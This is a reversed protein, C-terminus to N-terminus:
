EQPDLADRLADGLGNLSLVTLSLAVAPAIVVLPHSLYELSQLPGSILSGWSPMPPKIGIGLFSLTSEAIIVGAIDVTSAVVVAALLNPFIHRWLVAGHKLGIARAAEVYPREKLAMAQGRVLRALSPWGTISLTILINTISPGLIAMILIALLIDPFAFMMDTLRMLWLDVRGGFYGAALGITTGLVLVITEVSFGVGLSVRAGVALQTFLDYGTHDTGLWHQASPGAQYDDTPNDFHYPSVLPVIVAVLVIALLTLASLVAKPNHLLRLWTTKPASRPLALATTGTAM